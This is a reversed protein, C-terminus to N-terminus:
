VPFKLTLRNNRELRAFNAQADVVLGADDLCNMLTALSALSADLDTPSHVHDLVFWECM